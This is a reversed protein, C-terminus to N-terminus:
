NSGYFRRLIVASSAAAALPLAVTPSPGWGNPLRRRWWLVAGLVWALSGLATASRARSALAAVAVNGPVGAPFTAVCQGVGTAVGKGGKFGNWAPYCHGVVAATGAIHAGTPGALRRGFTSAAVGKAVDAAMVGYGWKKGLVAIANMAGPNGSGTTRIDVTGQTALRCAIDASPITGAAYGGAAAAALRVINM